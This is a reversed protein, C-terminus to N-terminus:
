QIRVYINNQSVSEMYSNLLREHIIEESRYCKSMERYVFFVTTVHYFPASSFSYNNSMIFTCVYSESHLTRSHHYIRNMYKLINLFQLWLNMFKMYIQAPPLVMQSSIANPVGDRHHNLYFCEKSFPNKSSGIMSSGYIHLRRLFCLSCHTCRNWMWWEALGICWWLTHSSILSEQNGPHRRVFLHHMLFPSGFVAIRRKCRVM